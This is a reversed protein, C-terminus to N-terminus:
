FFKRKAQYLYHFAFQKELLASQTHFKHIINHYAQINYTHDLRILHAETPKIFDLRYLSQVQVAPNLFNNM